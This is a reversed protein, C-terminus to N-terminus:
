YLNSIEGSTPMDITGVMNLFTTKGGGSPGRVMIFEGKRVPHIDSDYNLNINSLAIVDDDRGVLKYGKIYQKNIVKGCIM